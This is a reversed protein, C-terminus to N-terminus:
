PSPFVGTCRSPVPDRHVRRLLQINDPSLVVELCTHVSLLPIAEVQIIYRRYDAPDMRNDADWVSLFDRHFEPALLEDFWALLLWLYYKIIVVPPCDTEAIWRRIDGLDRGQFRTHLYLVAWAWCFHDQAQHNCLQILRRTTDDVDSTMFSPAIWLFGGTPQLTAEGIKPQVVHIQRTPFFQSALAQFISTYVGTTTAGTMSDFVEVTDPTIYYSAYHGGLAGLDLAVIMAYDSTTTIPIPVQTTHDAVPVVVSPLIIARTGAMTALIAELKEPITLQTQIQDSAGHARDILWLEWMEAQLILQIDEQLPPCEVM